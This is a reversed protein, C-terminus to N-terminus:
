DKKIFGLSIQSTIALWCKSSVVKGSVANDFLLTSAKGVGQAVKEQAKM